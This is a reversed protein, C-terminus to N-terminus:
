FDPEMFFVVLSDRGIKGAINQAQYKYRSVLYDRRERIFQAGDTCLNNFNRVDCDQLDRQARAEFAIQYSYFVPTKGLAKMRDLYLGQWWPNFDTNRPNEAWPGSIWLTVYDWQSYDIQDGQWDRGVKFRGNIFRKAL